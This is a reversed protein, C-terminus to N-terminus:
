RDAEARVEALLEVTSPCTEDVPIPRLKAIRKRVERHKRAYDVGDDFDEYYSRYPVPAQLNTQGGMWASFGYVNNPWSSDRADLYQQIITLAQQSISRNEDAACARLRDYVDQPCDKVQLAPM